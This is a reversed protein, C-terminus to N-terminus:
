SNKEQPDNLIEGVTGKIINANRCSQKRWTIRSKRFSVIQGPMKFTGNNLDTM